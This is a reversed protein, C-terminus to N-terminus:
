RYEIALMIHNSKIRHLRDRGAGDAAARAEASHEEREAGDAAAREEACGMESPGM